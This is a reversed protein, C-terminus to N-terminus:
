NCIRDDPRHVGIHRGKLLVHWYPYERHALKCIQTPTQFQCDAVHDTEGFTRAAIELATQM